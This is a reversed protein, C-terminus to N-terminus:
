FSCLKNLIYWPAGHLNGYGIPPTNGSFCDDFQQSFGLLLWLIAMLHGNAIQAKYMVATLTRDNHVWPAGYLNTYGTPPANCNFCDNFPQSTGLLLWKIGTLHGNAVPAKQMVAMLTRNSHVRPAGYLNRYGVPTTSSGFCDNFPQSSCM